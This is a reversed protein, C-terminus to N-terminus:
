KLVFLTSLKYVGLQRSLHLIVRFCQHLGATLPHWPFSVHGASGIIEEEIFVFYGAFFVKM